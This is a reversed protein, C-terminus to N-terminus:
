QWLKVKSVEKINLKLERNAFQKFNDTCDTTSYKRSGGKTLKSEIEPHRELYDALSDAVVEGPHPVQVNKGMYKAFYKYMLPYHTCGLILTDTNKSKLDRLYKKLIMLAEPKNHWGEEIFPVLLPCAQSYVKIEPDIKALEEDYSKSSVTGRTGVVGIRKTKSSEAAKEVLPILVGLIKRDKYKQQLHRLALASVTNCATIILEAGQDFLYEIAQESYGIVTDQSRTGYPSRANDGLYLYDYQPLKKILPKLVTLGGFGSDFLAIM